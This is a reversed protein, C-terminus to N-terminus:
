FERFLKRCYKRITAVTGGSDCYRTQDTVHAAISGAAGGRDMNSLISPWKARARHAPGPGASFLVVRARDPGVAMTGTGLGVHYAPRAQSESIARLPLMPGVRCPPDARGRCSGAEREGCGGMGRRRRESNRQAAPLRGERQETPRRRGETNCEGAGGKRRAAGEVEGEGDHPQPLNGARQAPRWPQLQQLNTPDSRAPSGWRAGM